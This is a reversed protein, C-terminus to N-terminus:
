AMQQDQAETEGNSRRIAQFRGAVATEAGTCVFLQQPTKRKWSRSLFWDENGWASPSVARRRQLRTFGEVIRCSRKRSLSVAQRPLLTPESFTQSTFLVFPAARKGFSRSPYQRLGEAYCRQLGGERDSPSTMCRCGRPPEAFREPRGRLAQGRM